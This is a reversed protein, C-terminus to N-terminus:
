DHARKLAALPDPRRARVLRWRRVGPLDDLRDREAGARAEPLIPALLLRSTAIRTAEMALM